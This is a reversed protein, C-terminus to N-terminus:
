MLGEPLGEPFMGEPYSVPSNGPQCRHHAVWQKFIQMSAHNAAMQTMNFAGEEEPLLQRGTSLGKLQARLENLAPLAGAKGIEAAYPESGALNALAMAAASQLWGAGRMDGVAPQMLFPTTLLQILKPIAGVAFIVGHTRQEEALHGLVLVALQQALMLDNDNSSLSLMRVLRITAGADFVLGRTESGGRSTIHNLIDVAARRRWPINDDSLLAVCPRICPHFRQIDSAAAAANQSDSASPDAQRGVFGALYGLCALASLRAQSSHEPGTRSALTLIADPCGMITAACDRHPAMFLLTVTAHHKIEANDGNKMIKVIFPIAGARAVELVTERGIQETRADGGVVTDHQADIPEGLRSGLECLRFLVALAEHQYGPRSEASLARVLNKV